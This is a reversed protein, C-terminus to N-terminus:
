WSFQELNDILEGDQDLNIWSCNLHIAYRYLLIFAKSFNFEELEVLREEMETLSEEVVNIFYGYDHKIVRIPLEVNSLWMADDATIHDTSLDLIKLIAM